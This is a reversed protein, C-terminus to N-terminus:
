AYQPVPSSVSQLIKHGCLKVMRVMNQAISSLTMQMSVKELGRHRLKRMGGINKDWGFTEEIEKRKKLSIKYGPKCYTRGDIEGSGGSVKIDVHPTVNLERLKQIHAKRDYGKDEGVTIRCTKGIRQRAKAILSESEAVEATGNAQTVIVGVTLGHRNDMLRHGMYYLKTEKGKGKRYLRAKPDTSSRYRDNTLVKGRFDISPNGPDDDKDRKLAEAEPTIPKLSKLSAAAELLTGDVSFHENSLLHLEDAKAINELLFAESLSQLREANQSFTSADWVEDQPSLDVFWRYLFNYRLHECLQRHSRITFIKELLLGKLLQEPPIGPRGTDAYICDFKVSMRSLAEDVLAKVPRIPHGEPIIDEVNMQYFLQPQENVLGRM